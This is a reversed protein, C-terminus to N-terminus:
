VVMTASGYAKVPKGNEDFETTYRVYFPVRGVALPVIAELHEVGEAIQRHWDRFTDAFEPPFIGAGLIERRGGFPEHYAGDGRIRSERSTRCIRRGASTKLVSLGTRLQMRHEEYLGGARADRCGRRYDPHNIRMLAEAGIM